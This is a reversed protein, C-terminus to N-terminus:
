SQKEPAADEDDEIGLVEQVQDWTEERAQYFRQLKAKDGSEVAENLLRAERDLLHYCKILDEYPVEESASKGEESRANKLLEVALDCTKVVDDTVQDVKAADFKKAEYLEATLGLCGFTSYINLAALGASAHHRLKERNQQPTDPATKEQGTGPVAALVGLVATVVSLLRRSLRQNKM